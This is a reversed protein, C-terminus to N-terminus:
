TNANSNEKMKSKRITIEQGCAKCEHIVKPDVTMFAEDWTQLTGGCGCLDETDRMRNAKLQEHHSLQSSSITSVDKGDM